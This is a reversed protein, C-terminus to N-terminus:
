DFDLSADLRDLAGRAAATWRPADAKDAITLAQRYHDAAEDPHGLAAALDGLHLAVPGLTLLGSGAGALEGAAPRLRAYAGEMAQRDGLAIATRATLCTRAEYLLDRPSDPIAKAAAAAEDRRGAALLTLPRAWPAHPGWDTEEDVEPRRGEQVRLCLLALPLIGHEMGPMGSGALSTSAARYAAEAEASHGTVALRLAAYWQTFVRALPIDYREALRDAAAAHADAAAFDALAADAQILILHGLVEFTVLHHRTALEILETGYRLRQPAMGARQFAHMFRGNLAFALVAPDGLRRAITEAERAARGGRDTPLGRLELALTSLLRSRQAEGDEPLATLTREIARVIQRALDEDDNRTWIAPVDFAGIVEATVQPDGLEEAAAVAEARHRRASELDGTVALARVMGM